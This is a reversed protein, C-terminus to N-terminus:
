REESEFVVYLGPAEDTLTNLFWFRDSSGNRKNIFREPSNRLRQM